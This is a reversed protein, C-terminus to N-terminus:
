FVFFFLREAQSLGSFRPDVLLASNHWLYSLYIKKLMKLLSLLLFVVFKQYLVAAASSIEVEM